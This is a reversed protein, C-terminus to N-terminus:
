AFGFRGEFEALRVRQVRVDAEFHSQEASASSSTETLTLRAKSEEVDDEFDIRILDFCELSFCFGMEFVFIKTERTGGEFMSQFEGALIREAASMVRHDRATEFRVVQEVGGPCLIFFRDCGVWRDFVGMFTQNAYM